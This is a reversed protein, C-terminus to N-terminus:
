NKGRKNKKKNTEVEKEESKSRNEKKMMRYVLFLVVSLMFIWYSGYFGVTFTQHVGIILLGLSMFLVISQLTSM